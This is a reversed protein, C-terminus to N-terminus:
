TSNNNTSNFNEEVFHLCLMRKFMETRFRAYRSDLRVSELLRSCKYGVLLILFQIVSQETVKCCISIWVFLISNKFRWGAM